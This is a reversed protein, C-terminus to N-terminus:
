PLTRSTEFIDSAKEFVMYDDTQVVFPAACRVAAVDLESVPMPMTYTGNGKKQARYLQRTAGAHFYIVEGRNTITPSAVGTGAINLESHITAGSFADTTAARTYFYFGKTGSERTVVATLGDPSIALDGDSQASSLDNAIIPASWSTTYTSIYIEDSGSRDSTFYLTKGDASIEPSKDDFGTSNVDTLLAPLFTDTLATRTALYIEADSAGTDATLVATMRDATFSPDSEGSGATELSTLEVPTGWPVYTSADIGIADIEADPPPDAEDLVQEDADHPASEAFCWGSRCEQGTPCTGETSCPAGPNASPGYCGGLLAAALVLRGLM